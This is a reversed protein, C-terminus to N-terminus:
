INRVAEEIDELHGCDNLTLLKWGDEGHHVITISTNGIHYAPEEMVDLCLVHRVFLDIAMGHSVGLIIETKHRIALENMTAVFRAQTQFQSEGGEPVYTVQHAGIARLHASYDDAPRGIWNGSNWERLGLHLQVPLGISQSIIQATEHARAIDSSYLIAPRLRQLRRAVREAQRRGRASLPIPAYGQFIRRANYDTEGHRVLIAKM